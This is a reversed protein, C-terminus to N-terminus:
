IQAQLLPHPPPHRRLARGAEKRNGCGVRREAGERCEPGPAPPNHLHGLATYDAGFARIQEATVPCDSSAPSSMDGHCVLLNIREPDDASLGDFPVTDLDPGSFAFGYVTVGTDEGDADMLDVAEVTPDTFIHVNEPFTVRRWVSGPAAPDHNGPTIFVPKGYNEFEKTLLKVTDRTVRDGDFLDGALLILDTDARRAYNMMSSFADRLENRRLEATRSDLGSFPSDLHLDAAHLLKLKMM